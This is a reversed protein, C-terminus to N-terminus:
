VRTGRSARGTVADPSSAEERATADARSGLHAESEARDKADDQRRAEGSPDDPGRV